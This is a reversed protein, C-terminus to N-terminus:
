RPHRKSESKGQPGAGQGSGEPQGCGGGVFHVVELRDGSNVTITGWSARRAIEGNLEVAIRDPKLGLEVVVRGMDVGDSLEAFSREQGNLILTLAM